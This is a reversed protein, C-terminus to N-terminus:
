HLQYELQLTSTKKTKRKIGCFVHAPKMLSRLFIVSFLFGNQLVVSLAYSLVVKNGTCTFTRRKFFYFDTKQDMIIKNGM